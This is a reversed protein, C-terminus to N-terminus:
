SVILADETVDPMNPGPIEARKAVIRNNRDVLVVKPKHTRAEEETMDGFTAIIVMDGPKTLHAAAGNMCIVGSGSQGEVAYTVLRTGRTVNWVHIEQNPLIDVANMLDGDITCSGEYHLDAHTITARHIKALFMRRFM